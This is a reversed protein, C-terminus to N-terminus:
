KSKNVILKVGEIKEITVEEGENIVESDSSRASWINGEINVQGIGLENNIEAVVKGKKGIFRDVNTPVVDIKKIKKIFPRTLLLSVVTVIIFVIIQILFDDVFLSTILAAIGGIVFWLSVLQATAIECVAMFIIIALWIYPLYEIM